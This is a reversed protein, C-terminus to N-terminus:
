REDDVRSDPIPTTKKDKGPRRPRPNRDVNEERM